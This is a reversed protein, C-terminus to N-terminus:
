TLYVNPDLGLKILNRCHYLPSLDVSGIENKTLTLNRLKKCESLPAFEISELKNEYLHLAKIETCQELPTLDITRLKNFSLDLHMLSTCGELFSLDITDFQNGGLSLEVLTLCGKLQIENGSLTLVELNPFQDLSSLDTTAIRRDSLDIETASSDFREVVKGGKKTESWITIEAM